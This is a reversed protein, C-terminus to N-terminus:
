TQAASEQCREGPYRNNEECVYEFLGLNDWDPRLTRESRSPTGPFHSCVHDLSLVHEDRILALVGQAEGM